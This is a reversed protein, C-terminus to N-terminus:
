TRQLLKSLWIRAHGRPFDALRAFERYGHREYFEPAQFTFMDVYAARCNSTRAADEAISLLQSGIGLKRHPEAVWLWRLFVWDLSTIFQVGAQVAGSEDRGIIWHPTWDALPTFLANYSDLGSAIARITRQDLAPEPALTLPSQTLTLQM